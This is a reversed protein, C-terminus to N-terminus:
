AFVALGILSGQPVTGQVGGFVVVGGIVVVVVVVVVVEVVVVDSASGSM